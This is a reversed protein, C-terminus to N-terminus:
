PQEPPPPVPQYLHAVAIVGALAAGMIAPKASAVSLLPAHAELYGAFAGLFCSLPITLYHAKLM